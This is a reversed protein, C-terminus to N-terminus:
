SSPPLFVFPYTVRVHGRDEPIRPFRWKRINNLIESELPSSGLSSFVLVTETIHGSPSIEFMVTAKGKLSPDKRLEKNYLYRLGSLYSAVVKRIEHAARGGKGEEFEEEMEEPLAEIGGYFELQTEKVEGIKAADLIYGIDTGKRAVEPLNGVGLFDEDPGEERQVDSLNKLAQRLEESVDRKKSPQYARLAPDTSEKSLMGLLGKQAVMKRVDVETKPTSKPSGVASLPPPSTLKKKDAETMKRPPPPEPTVPKVIPKPPEPEKLFIEAVKQAEPMPIQYFRQIRISQIYQASLIGALLVCLFILAFVREEYAVHPYHLQSRFTATNEPQM